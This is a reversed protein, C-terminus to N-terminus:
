NYIYVMCYLGETVNVTSTWVKNGDTIYLYRLGIPLSIDNTGNYYKGDTENDIQVSYNIVPDYNFNNDVIRIHGRLTKVLVSKYSSSTKKNKKSFTNLTITYNGDQGLTPIKYIPREGEINVISGNPSTVTWECKKADKSYNSFTVTEGASYESKDTTFESTPQKRCGSILIIFLFLHGFKIRM